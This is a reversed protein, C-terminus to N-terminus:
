LKLDFVVALSGLRMKPTDEIIDDIRDIGFGLSEVRIISPREIYPANADEVCECRVGDLLGGITGVRIFPITLVSSGETM